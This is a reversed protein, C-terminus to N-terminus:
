SIPDRPRARTNSRKEAAAQAWAWRSRYRSVRPDQDDAPCSLGTPGGLCAPDRGIRAPFSTRPVRLYLRVGSTGARFLLYARGGPTAADPAGPEQPRSRSRPKACDFLNPPRPCRLDRHRGGLVTPNPAPDPGVDALQQSAHARPVLHRDEATALGCGGIGPHRGNRQRIASADHRVVELELEREPPPQGVQDPLIPRVQEDHMVRLHRVEEGRRLRTGDDHRRMRRDQPLGAPDLLRPAPSAGEVPRLLRRHGHEGSQKRGLDVVPLPDTMGEEHRVRHTALTMSLQGYESMSAIARPLGITALETGPIRSMTTSPSDANSTGGPSGFAKADAM